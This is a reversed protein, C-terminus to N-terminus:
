CRFSILAAKAWKWGAPAAAAPNATKQCISNRGVAAWYELRVQDPAPAAGNFHVVVRHIERPDEWMVGNGEPLPLGFPAAQVPACFGALALAIWKRHLAPPHITSKM